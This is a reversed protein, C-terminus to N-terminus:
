SCLTTRGRCAHQKRSRAHTQTNPTHHPAGRPRDEWRATRLGQSM